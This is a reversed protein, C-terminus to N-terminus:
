RWLRIGSHSVLVVKPRNIGCDYLELTSNNADALNPSILKASNERIESWEAWKVQLKSKLYYNGSLEIKSDPQLSRTIWTTIWALSSHSSPRLPAGDLAGVNRSNTEKIGGGGRAERPRILTEYTGHWSYVHSPGWFFLGTPFPSSQSILCM